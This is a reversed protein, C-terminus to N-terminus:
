TYTILLYKSRVAWNTYNRLHRDYTESQKRCATSGVDRVTFNALAEYFVDSIWMGPFDAPFVPTAPSPGGGNCGASALLALAAM